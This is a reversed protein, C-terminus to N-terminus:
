NGQTARARPRNGRLNISAGNLTLHRIELTDLCAPLQPHHFRIARKAPAFGLRRCAPGWPFCAPPSFAVSGMLQEAPQTPQSEAL